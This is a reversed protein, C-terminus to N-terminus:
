TCGVVSVVICGLDDLRHESLSRPPLLGDLLKKGTYSTFPLSHLNIDTGPSQELSVRSTNIVASASTQEDDLVLLEAQLGSRRWQTALDTDVSMGRSQLISIQNCITTGPKLSKSMTLM